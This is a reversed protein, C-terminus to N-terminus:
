HKISSFLYWWLLLQGLECTILTPMAAILLAVDLLEHWWIMLRHEHLYSRIAHSYALCQVLNSSAGCMTPQEAIWLALQLNIM